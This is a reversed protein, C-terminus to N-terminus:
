EKKKNKSRVAVIVIGGVVFFAIAGILGVSMGGKKETPTEVKQAPTTVVAQQAASPKARVSTDPAGTPQEQANLVLSSAGLLLM